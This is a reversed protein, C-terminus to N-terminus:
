TISQDLDFITMRSRLLLFVAVAALLEVVLGLASGEPGTVAGSLWAPGTPVTDLLAGACSQGSDHAGYLFSESYDWGAHFGIPWWLSKTRQLALCLIMGVGFVNLIGIASEHANFLHLTGFALSTLLAAPWFGMGRALTQQLYGRFALEETLGILLSTGLWALAFGVGAPVPLGSWHFQALGGALLLAMLFSLTVVGVLLGAGLLRAARTSSLGYSLVSRGEIHAMVWSALLVPLLLLLENLMVFGAGLQAQPQMWTLNLRALLWIEASVFGAVLVVYGLARWGPALGALWRRARILRAM